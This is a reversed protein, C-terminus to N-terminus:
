MLGEVVSIWKEKQVIKPNIILLCFRFPKGFQHILPAWCVNWISHLLVQTLSTHLIKGFFLLILFLSLSLTMKTFLQLFFDFLGFGFLYTSMSLFIISLFFMIKKCFLIWILLKYDIAYCIDIVLFITIFVMIFWYIILLKLLYFLLVKQFEELKYFHGYM